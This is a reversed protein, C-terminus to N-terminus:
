RTLERLPWYRRLRSSADLALFVRGKLKSLDNAVVSGEAFKGGLLLSSRSPPTVRWCLLRAAKRRRQSYSNPTSWAAMPMSHSHLLALFAREADNLM